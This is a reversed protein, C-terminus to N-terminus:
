VPLRITFTAGKGKESNCVIKGKHEGIIQHAISLGLGTGTDKTSYFPDFIRDLEEDPIGPGTDSIAIEIEKGKNATTIRLEGGNPMAEFANRTINLIAQKIQRRDIPVHPLNTDLDKKVVIRDTYAELTLFNSVEEIIDNIDELSSESKPFRAFQLYGEIIRTLRDVESMISNLLKDAETTDSAGKFQSIEEKILEANLSISGLPNKIEHAIQATMKGITSLREAKILQREYDRKQRLVFWVSASSTLVAGIIARLFRLGRFVDPALHPFYRYEVYEWAIFVVVVVFACIWVIHWLHINRRM